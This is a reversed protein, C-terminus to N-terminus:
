KTETDYKVITKKESELKVKGSWKGMRGKRDLKESEREVKEGKLNWIRARNESRKREGGKM